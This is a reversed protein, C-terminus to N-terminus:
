VNAVGERSKDGRIDRMSASIIRNRKLRTRQAITAEQHRPSMWFLHLQGVKSPLDEASFVNGANMGEDGYILRESEFVENAREMYRALETTIQKRDFIGHPSSNSRKVAQAFTQMHSRGFLVIDVQINERAALQCLVFLERLPNRETANEGNKEWRVYADILAETDCVVRINRAEEEDRLRVALEGDKASRKWDIQRLSDGEAYSRYGKVDGSTANVFVCGTRSYLFQALPERFRKQIVEATSMAEKSIRSMNWDTKGKSLTPRFLTRWVCAEPTKGDTKLKDDVIRYLPQTIGKSERFFTTIAHRRSQKFEDEKGSSKRPTSDREDEVDADEHMLSTPTKGWYRELYRQLGGSRKIEVKRDTEIDVLLKAGIVAAVKAEPTLGSFPAKMQNCASLVAECPAFVRAKDGVGNHSGLQRLSSIAFDIAPGNNHGSKAAAYALFGRYAEDKSVDKYLEALTGSVLAIKGRENFAFVLRRWEKPFNDRLNEMATEAWHRGRRFRNYCVAAQLPAVDEGLLETSLAAIEAVRIKECSDGQQSWVNGFYLDQADFSSKDKDVCIQGTEKLLLKLASSEPIDPWVEKLAGPLLIGYTELTEGLKLREVSYKDLLKSSLFSAPREVEDPYGIRIEGKRAEYSLERQLHRQIRKHDVYDGPPMGVNIFFGLTRWWSEFDQAKLGRNCFTSTVKAGLFRQHSELEKEGHRSAFLGDRGVELAFTTLDKAYLNQNEMLLDFFFETQDTGGLNTIIGITQAIDRIADKITQREEENLGGRKGAAVLRNGIIAALIAVAEKDRRLFAVNGGEMKEALTLACRALKTYTSVAIPRPNEFYGSKAIPLALTGFLLSKAQADTLNAVSKKNVLKVLEKADLIQEESSSFTFRNLHHEKVRGQGFEIVTKKEPLRHLIWDVSAQRAVPTFGAESLSEATFEIVRNRVSYKPLDQHAAPLDKVEAPIVTPLHPNERYFYHVQTVAGQKRCYEISKELALKKSLIGVLREEGPMTMKDFDTQIETEVKTDRYRRQVFPMGYGRWNLLANALGNFFGLETTKTSIVERVESSYDFVQHYNLGRLRRLLSYREGALLSNANTDDAKAAKDSLDSVFAGDETLVATQSHGTKLSYTSESLNPVLGSVLVAPIGNANFMSASYYSLADKTGLRMGGVTETVANGATSLFSRVFASDAVKFGRQAQHGFLLQMEDHKKLNFCAMAESYAEGEIGRFAAVGPLLRKLREIQIPPVKFEGLRVVYSIERAGVPVTVRAGGLACEEVEVPYVDAMTQGWRDNFSIGTVEYGLPLLINMPGAKVPMTIRTEDLNPELVAPVRFEASRYLHKRLEAIQERKGEEQECRALFTELRVTSGGKKELVHVDLVGMRKWFSQDLSKITCVDQARRVRHKRLYTVVDSSMDAYSGTKNMAHGRAFLSKYLKSNCIYNVVASAGTLVPDILYHDFLKLSTGLTKAVQRRGFILALGGGVAAAAGYQMGNTTAYFPTWWELKAYLLGLQGAAVSAVGVISARTLLPHRQLMKKTYQSSATLARAAQRYTAIALRQAPRALFVAAFVGGVAAAGTLSIKAVNLDFQFYQGIRAGLYALSGAAASTAAVAAVRAIRPRETWLKTAFNVTPSTLYYAAAAMGVTLAAGLTFKLDSTTVSIFQWSKFQSYEYAALAGMGAWAAVVAGAMLKPHNLWGMKWGTSAKTGASVARQTVISTATTAGQSTKQLAFASIKKLALKVKNGVFTGAEVCKKAIWRVGDVAKKVCWVVPSLAMGVAFAGGKWGQRVTWGIGKGVYGIGRGIAWACLAVGEVGRRIWLGCWAAGRKTKTWVKDIKEAVFSAGRGVIAAAKRFVAIVKGIPYWVVSGVEAAVAAFLDKVAARTRARENPDLFQDPNPAPLPPPPPEPLPVKKLGQEIPELFNSFSRAASSLTRLVHQFETRDEKGLGLVSRSSAEVVYSIDEILREYTNKQAPNFSLHEAISQLSRLAAVPENLIQQATPAEIPPEFYQAVERVEEPIAAAYREAFEKLRGLIYRVEDADPFTLTLENVSHKDAAEPLDGPRYDRVYHFSSQRLLDLDPEIGCGLGTVAEAGVSEQNSM